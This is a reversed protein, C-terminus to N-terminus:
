AYELALKTMGLSDGVPDARRLLEHCGAHGLSNPDADKPIPCVYNQFFGRTRRLIATRQKKWADGDLLWILKGIGLDRLELLRLVQGDRLVSGFLGIANQGVTEADFISETVVIYGLSFDWRPTTYLTRSTELWEPYLAKPKANLYTKAEFGQMAGLYWVPLLWRGAYQGTVAFWTQSELHALGRARLRIRAPHDAASADVRFADDPFLAHPEDHDPLAERVDFEPMGALQVVRQVAARRDLREVLRVLDVINGRGSWNDGGAGGDACKFCIIRRSEVYVSLTRYGGCHPCDIRVAHGRDRLRFHEALWRLLPFKQCATKVYSSNM